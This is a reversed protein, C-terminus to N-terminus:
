VASGSRPSITVVSSRVARAVMEATQGLVEGAVGERAHSGMAILDFSQAEAFRPLLDRADGEVLHVRDAPLDTPASELVARLGAEARTRADRVYHDLEEASVHGKLLEAAPAYWCSVAHLEAGAIEAIRQAWALIRVGAARRSETDGPDIAALIRKPLRGDDGVVWVPCPCKRFLHLATTGFFVRGEHSLGRAPKVVLDIEFREVLDLVVEWPVGWCVTAGLRSPGSRLPAALRELERIEAEVLLDRLREADVEGGSGPRPHLAKELVRVLYIDLGARGALDAALRVAREAQDEPPALVLVRQM